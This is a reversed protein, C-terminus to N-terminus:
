KKVKKFHCFTRDPRGEAFCPIQDSNPKYCEANYNDCYSCCLINGPIHTNEVAIFGPPAFNPDLPM